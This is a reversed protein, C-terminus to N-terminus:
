DYNWRENNVFLYDRVVKVDAGESVAKNYFPRLLKRADRLKKSLDSKIFIGTVSLTEKM